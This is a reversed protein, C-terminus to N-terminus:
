QGCPVATCCWLQPVQQEAAIAAVDKDHTGGRDCRGATENGGSNEGGL